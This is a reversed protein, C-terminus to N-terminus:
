LVVASLKRLADLHGFLVLRDSPSFRHDPSPWRTVETGHKLALLSVDSGDLELEALTRDELMEGARVEVVFFQSGLSLYDLVLPYQLSQAVRVGMDYEPHLIRDAGLRALIRHHPDSLAKVWVQKVGTSKLALTCLLSAEIDTGIAVVVADYDDLALDRVVKEDTADAQLAQTLHDAQRAVVQPDVDVGLVDHGLRVLEHAVTSGFAGLGIVAFQKKM